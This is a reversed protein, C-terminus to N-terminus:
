GSTPRCCTSRTRATPPAVWRGIVEMGIAMAVYGNFDTIFPWLSSCRPRAPPVSRGCRRPGSGTSWVAWRGAAPSSAAIGACTLGLGVQAASLGVIQTFFVASGTLFTGRRPRVPAVPRRPPRLTFAATRSALIGSFMVPPERDVYRRMDGPKGRTAHGFPGGVGPSTPEVYQPSRRGEGRGRSGPYALSM